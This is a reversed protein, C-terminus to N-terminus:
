NLDFCLVQSAAEGLIELRSEAALAAGDGASLRVGNLRITGAAVQVWGHRQPRMDLGVRQGVELKALRLDVDQHIRLSGERGERSAVLAWAGSPASAFSREDYAPAVGRTEPLIWIQLFHVPEIPSYNFESHLVGTGASIRQVDGAKMIATHGLSDRHQLAGSIV